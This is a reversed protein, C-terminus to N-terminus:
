EKCYRKVPKTDKPSAHPREKSETQNTGIQDYVSSSNLGWGRRRARWQGQLGCHGRVLQWQYKQTQSVKQQTERASNQVPEQEGAQQRARHQHGHVGRLGAEQGGGRPGPSACLLQDDDSTVRSQTVTVRSVFVRAEPPAIQFALTCIGLCIFENIRM